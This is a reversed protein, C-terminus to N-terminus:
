IKMTTVLSVYLASYGEIISEKLAKSYEVYHDQSFILDTICNHMTQMIAPDPSEGNVKLELDYRKGRVTNLIKEAMAFTVNFVMPEVGINLLERKEDETYQQGM